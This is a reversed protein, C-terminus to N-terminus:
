FVVKRVTGDEIFQKKIEVGIGNGGPVKLMGDDVEFEPTVIDEKWYRRSASIDGPLTFGPLTALAVNHARGVGSELMGGCWVPIGHSLCLDHIAKSAGIGGVRGPKINIIQCSRLELALAADRASRISEDLCIPTEIQEQLRAHGLYDDHALPQEIMMLGVKDLAKLRPLDELSFASNADAMLMVEPYKERLGTLMEVDRGPKIKVKIRKYGDAVFQEVKNHLEQDSPQLGISVGVPVTDRVGGILNTLSIGKAKAELDLAAMEASAKAMRHGRIGSTAKLVDRATEIETGKLGPLIYETLISWATETTEYTYGPTEGAVCEGWGTLGDSYITLLLVRRNYSVGSSIEFPERLQMTMERLEVRDIKM